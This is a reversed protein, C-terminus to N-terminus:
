ESSHMWTVIREIALPSFQPDIVPNLVPAGSVIPVFAHTEAPLLETTVHSLGGDAWAQYRALHEPWVNFDWAGSMYLLPETTTQLDVAPRDNWAAFTEWFVVPTGLYTAEPWTGALVQGLDRRYDRGLKRLGAIDDGFAVADVSELYDAFVEVQGGLTDVLSLAPAALGIGGTVLAESAVLHPVFSGGQSHGAVLVDGARLDRRTTLSAIAQRADEVFDDVTIAYVDGPYDDVSTTCTASNERFCTRKEYRLCAVGRWALQEAFSTYVDVPQSFPVGLSGELRGEVGHPGSGHILVVAPPAYDGAVVPLTLV